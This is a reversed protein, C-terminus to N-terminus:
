TSLWLATGTTKSSAVTLSERDVLAKRKQVENFGSALHAQGQFCLYEALSNQELL